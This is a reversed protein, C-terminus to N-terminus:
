ERGGSTSAAPLDRYTFTREVTTIAQGDAEAYPYIFYNLPIGQQKPNLVLDRGTTFEVRLAHTIQKSRTPITCHPRPCTLFVRSASSAMKLYLRVGSTRLM